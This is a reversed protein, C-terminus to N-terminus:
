CCNQGSYSVNQFQIDGECHQPTKSVHTTRLDGANDINVLINHLIEAANRGKELIIVQPLLEEFTNSAMLCAWFATLIQGSNRAKTELLHSGYWFGQVFIALTLFRICGMQLASIKVQNIYQQTAQSVIAMYKKLEYDQGNCCKVAEISNIAAAAAKSADALYESQSIIYPQLKKSLFSM